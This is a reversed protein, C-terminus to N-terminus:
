KIKIKIKNKILFFFKKVNKIYDLSVQFLCRSFYVDNFNYHHKSPVIEKEFYFQISFNEGFEFHDLLKLKLNIARLLIILAIINGNQSNQKSLISWREYIKGNRQINVTLYYNQKENWEKEVKELEQSLITSYNTFM